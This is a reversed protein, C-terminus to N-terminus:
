AGRAFTQRVPRGTSSGSVKDHSKATRPMLDTRSSDQDMVFLMKKLEAELQELTTRGSPNAHGDRFTKIFANKLSWTLHSWLNYWNGPPMQCNSGTGLPCRGKILNEDPTGCASKHAPDYYTYPHLGCMLIHFVIMAAGFEVQHINRPHKLLEPNRLLEPASYSPFYTRSIHKYGTSTQIQFSDCDIFSIHGTDDVLFNAPNFDNILVGHDSLMKVKRVFDLAVEVLTRRNWTPFFKRINAPGRLSLLSRGTSKRMAFGIVERNGNRVPMLPWALWKKDMSGDRYMDMIRDRITKMKKQDRLTNQKYIKILINQNDPLVYVAGEGGSTKYEREGLHLRSNNLDYADLASGDEPLFSSSSGSSGASRNFSFGGSAASSAPTAPPVSALNKRRFLSFIGM